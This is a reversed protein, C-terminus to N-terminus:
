PLAVATPGIGRVARRLGSGDAGGARALAFAGVVVGIALAARVGRRRNGYRSVAARWM